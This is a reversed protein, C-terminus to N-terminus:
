LIDRFRMRTMVGRQRCDAGNIHGDTQKHAQKNTKRCSIEFVSAALIVFTKKENKKYPLLIITACLPVWRDEMSSVTNQNRFESILVFGVQTGYVYDGDAM